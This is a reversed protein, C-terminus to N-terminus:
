IFNLTDKVDQFDLFRSITSVGFRGNLVMNEAQVLELHKKARTLAVYMVRREESLADQEDSWDAFVEDVPHLLFVTDWELGKASHITSIVLSDANEDEQKGDLTLNDLFSRVSRMGKAMNQMVAIDNPLENMMNQLSEAEKDSTTREWQRQLLNHYYTEIMNLKDSIRLCSKFKDWFMQFDSTMAKLRVSQKFHKEPHLMVNVGYESLRPIMREITKAGIGPYEGLVNGWALGDCDNLSIRLYSLITNVSKKEIFKRGGYKVCSIGRKYCEQEVYASGASKRVLVAQESLPVGMRKHRYEVGDLIHSAARGDDVARVYLPKDGHCQGVLQKPIGVDSHKMMVNSVNLIEQTSRYNEVLPIVQCNQYREQFSLINDIEAARFRYISQNDDGVVCLNQNKSTLISLIKEQLRNTDQYEDCMVYTFRDSLTNVFYANSELVNLFVQLLDDYNVYNSADKKFQYYDFVSMVVDRYNELSEDCEDTIALAIPIQKNISNSLVRQLVSVSPFEKKQEKTFSDLCANRSQRFLSSDDATGIVTYDPLQLTSRYDRLMKLVFAHFTMACVSKGLEGVYSVLRDRMEEAAKTTFTLLLIRYAPIGQSIMYAVRSILTHTKGTGAGALMLEYGNIITAAQRQQQNLNSLFDDSM